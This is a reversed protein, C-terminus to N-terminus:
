NKMIKKSLQRNGDIIQLTYIGAPLNNINYTKSWQSSTEIRDELVVKGTLDRLFLLGQKLDLDSVSVNLVDSTPNPFAQIKALLEDDQRVSSVLNIAIQGLCTHSNGSADRVTLEYSVPSAQGGVISTPTIDFSVIDGCNDTSEGILFEDILTREQGDALEIFVGPICNAVPPVTDRVGITVNFASLTNRCADSTYIQYDGPALGTILSNDVEQEDLFYNYPTIGGSVNFQVQGDAANDCTASTVDLTASPFTIDNQATIGLQFVGKSIDFGEVVVFYSGACLNRNIRSQLNTESTIDDNSTILNQDNDYLYIKTDLDTNDFDTTIDVSADDDLFFRYIVEPSPDGSNNPYQFDYGNSLSVTLNNNVHTRLGEGDVKGFNLPRAFTEGNEYRWIAEISFNWDSTAPQMQRGFWTGDTVGINPNWRSARTHCTICGRPVFAVGTYFNDDGDEFECREGGDDEFAILTITFDDDFPRDYFEGIPNSSGDATVTGEGDFSYCQIGYPNSSGDFVNYLMTYEEESLPDGGAGSQQQTMIISYRIEDNIIQASLNTSLLVLLLMLFNKM